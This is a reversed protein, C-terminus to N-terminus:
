AHLPSRYCQYRPPVTHVVISACAYVTAQLGDELDRGEPPTGSPSHFITYFSKPFHLLIAKTTPTDYVRNNLEM